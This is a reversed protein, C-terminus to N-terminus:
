KNSKTFFVKCAKNSKTLGHCLNEAKAADKIPGMHLYHNSHKDEYLKGDLHKLESHREQLIKLAKDKVNPSVLKAVRLYYIKDPEILKSTDKTKWNKLQKDILDLAKSKSFNNENLDKTKIVDDTNKTGSMHTYIDKDKNPIIVGGPDDPKSIINKPARVLPLDEELVNDIHIYYSYFLLYGFGVLCCLLLFTKYLFIKSFLTKEKRAM